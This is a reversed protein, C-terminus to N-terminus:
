DRPEENTLTTAEQRTSLTALSTTTTRPRKKNMGPTRLFTSPSSM